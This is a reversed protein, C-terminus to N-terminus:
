ISYDYFWICIMQKPPDLVLKTTSVITWKLFYSVDSKVRILITVFIILVRVFKIYNRIATCNRHGTDHLLCFLDSRCNTIRTSSCARIILSSSIWIDILYWWVFGFVYLAFDLSYYVFWVICFGILLICIIFMALSFILTVSVFDIVYCALETWIIVM